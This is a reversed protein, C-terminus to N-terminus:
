VIKEVSFYYQILSLIILTYYMERRYMRNLNSDVDPVHWKRASIM